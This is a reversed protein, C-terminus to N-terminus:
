IGQTRDKGDAGNTGNSSQSSSFGVNSTGLLISYPTSILRFSRSTM